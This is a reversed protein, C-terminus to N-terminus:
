GRYTPFFFIPCFAGKHVPVHYFEFIYFFVFSSKFYQRSVEEFELKISPIGTLLGLLGRNSRRITEFFPSITANM